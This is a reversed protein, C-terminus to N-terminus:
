RITSGQPIAHQYGVWFCVSSDLCMMGVGRQCAARIAKDRSARLFYKRLINPAPLQIENSSDQSRMESAYYVDFM